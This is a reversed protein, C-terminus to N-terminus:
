IVYYKNQFLINAYVYSFFVLSFYMLICITAIESITYIRSMKNEIKYMEKDELNDVIAETAEM